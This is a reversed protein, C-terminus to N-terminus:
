QLSNIIKTASPMLRFAAAAFLGLTPLLESPSKGQSMIILSLGVFGCIALFELWLRPLLQLFTQNCLLHASAFNSKQYANIFVTERGLLKVDKAGGLAQQLHQIRDKEAIQLERGWRLLPMRTARNFIWAAAALVSVVILAGIPEVVVLLAVIGALVLTEVIVSLSPIVFNSVLTSVEGITNRILQASNRELHFTWPQSIYLNFLRQSFDAQIDFAFRTQKWALFALFLTKIAYAFLLILLAVAVLEQHTLNDINAFSAHIAPFKLLFEPNTILALAPIVLGVSLTELIMGVLMLALIGLARRRQNFSLIAWLKSFSRMM